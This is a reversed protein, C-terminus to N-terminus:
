HIAFNFNCKPCNVEGRHTNTTVIQLNELRNDERIRNRHHVNEERKLPRKLHNSMILRHEAVYGKKRMM